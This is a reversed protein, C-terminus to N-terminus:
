NRFILNLVCIIDDPITSITIGILIWSSSIFTLNIGSIAVKEIDNKLDNLISKIESIENYLSNNASSIKDSINQELKYIDEICRNLININMKINDDNSKKNDWHAMEILQGGILQCGVSISEPNIIIPQPNYKPIESLWKKFKFSINPTNFDDKTKRINYFVVFIGLWQLAVGIRIMNEKSFCFYLFLFPLLSIILTFWNWKPKIFFWTLLGSIYRKIKQFKSMNTEQLLDPVIKM